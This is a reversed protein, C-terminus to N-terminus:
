SLKSDDPAKAFDSGTLGEQKLMTELTSIDASIDLADDAFLTDLLNEFAMNITDLAREIEGKARTINEGQVPQSEFEEYSNVLKLTTPMYYRMFRRIDALKEPHKRVCAFIRATIEELRDLKKSIVEGPLADNASRIQQLYESGEKKVAELEADKPDTQKRQEEARAAETRITYEKEAQLYEHYTKDDVMFCTESHDLHGQPFAGCTIMKKLDKKAREQTEGAIDALQAVTCFAANGLADRYRSFRRARRRLTLGYVMLALVAVTIPLLVALAITFDLLSAYRSVGAVFALIDIIVMPIGVAAGIITYVLGSISGPMRSRLVFNSTPNQYVPPAVPPSSKQDGADNRFVDGQPRNQAHTYPQRQGANKLEDFVDKGVNSFEQVGDDIVRGIDEFNGSRIADRVARGVQKGIHKYNKKRM